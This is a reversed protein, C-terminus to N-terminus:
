AKKSTNKKTTTTKKVPTKKEVPKEETDKDKVAEKKPAEEKPELKKPEEKLYFNVEDETLGMYYLEEKTINSVKVNGENFIYRSPRYDLIDQLSVASVRVKSKKDLRYVRGQTDFLGIPFDVVNELIITRETNM